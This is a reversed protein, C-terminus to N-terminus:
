SIVLDSNKIVSLIDSDEMGILPLLDEIPKLFNFSFNVLGFLATLLIVWNTIISDFKSFVGGYSKRQRKRKMIFFAMLSVFMIYIYLDLFFLCYRMVVFISLSSKGTMVNASYFFALGNLFLLVSGVIGRLTIVVWKEIKM